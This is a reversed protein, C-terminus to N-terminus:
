KSTEHAKLAAIMSTVSEREKLKKKAQVMSNNVIAALTREIEQTALDSCQDPMLLNDQQAVRHGGDSDARQISNDASTSSAAESM